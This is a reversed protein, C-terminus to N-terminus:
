ATERVYAMREGAHRANTRADPEIPISQTRMMSEGAGDWARVPRKRRHPSSSGCANLPM